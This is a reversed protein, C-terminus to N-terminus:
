QLLVQRHQSQDDILCLVMVVEGKLMGLSVAVLLGHHFQLVRQVEVGPMYARMHNKAGDIGAILIEVFRALVPLLRQIETGRMLFSVVIKCLAFDDLLM